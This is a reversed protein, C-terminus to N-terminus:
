ESFYILRSSKSERLAIREVSNIANRHSHVNPSFCQLYIDERTLINGNGYCSRVLSTLIQYRRNCKKPDAKKFSSPGSIFLALFNIKLFKKFNKKSSQVILHINNVFKMASLKGTSLPLKNYINM